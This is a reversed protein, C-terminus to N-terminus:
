CIDKGRDRGVCLCLGVVEGEGLRERWPSLGEFAIGRRVEGRGRKSLVGEMSEGGGEPPLACLSPSFMFDKGRGKGGLFGM